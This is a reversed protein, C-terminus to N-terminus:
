FIGSKEVEQRDNQHPNPLNMHFFISSDSARPAVTKHQVSEDPQIGTNVPSLPLAQAPGPSGAM